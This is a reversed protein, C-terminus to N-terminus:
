SHPETAIQRDKDPGHRRSRDTRTQGTARVPLSSRSWSGPGEGVQKGLVKSVTWGEEAFAGPEQEQPRAEAEEGHRHWTRSQSVILWEASSGGDFKVPEARSEVKKERGWPM